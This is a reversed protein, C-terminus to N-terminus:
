MSVAYIPTVADPSYKICIQPFFPRPLFSWIQTSATHIVDHLTM